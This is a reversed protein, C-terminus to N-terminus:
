DSVPFVAVKTLEDSFFALYEQEASGVVFLNAVKGSVNYWIGGFDSQLALFLRQGVYLLVIHNRAGVLVLVSRQGVDKAGDGYTLSEYKALCFLRSAKQRLLQQSVAM